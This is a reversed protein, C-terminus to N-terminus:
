PQMPRFRPQRLQQSCIRYARSHLLFALSVSLCDQHLEPRAEAPADHPPLEAANPSAKAHQPPASPQRAALPKESSSRPRPILSQAPPKAAAPLPQMPTADSECALPVSPESQEEHRELDMSASCPRRDEPVSAVLRNWQPEAYPAGRPSLRMAPPHQGPRSRPNQEEAPWRLSAARM